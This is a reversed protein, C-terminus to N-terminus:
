STVYMSTKAIQHHMKVINIKRQKKPGTVGFGVGLLTQNSLLFYFFFSIIFLACTANIYGTPLNLTYHKAYRM